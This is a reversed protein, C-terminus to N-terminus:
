ETVCVVPQWADLKSPYSNDYKVIFLLVILDGIMNLQVLKLDNLSVQETLFLFLLQM